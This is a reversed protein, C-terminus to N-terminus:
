PDGGVSNVLPGRPITTLIRQTEGVVSELDAPEALGLISGVAIRATTAAEVAFAALETLDDLDEERTTFGITPEMTLRAEIASEYWRLHHDLRWLWWVRQRGQEAARDHLWQKGPPWSAQDPFASAREELAEVEDQATPRRGVEIDAEALRLLDHASAARWRRFWEGLEVQHDALWRLVTAQEFIRAAVTLAEVARRDRVLPIVSELMATCHSLLGFLALAEPRSIGVSDLGGAIIRSARQLYDVLEDLSPNAPDLGVTPAVTEVKVETGPVARGRAEIARGQFLVGEAVTITMRENFSASFEDGERVFRSLRTRWKLIPYEQGPAALRTPDTVEGLLLGRMVKRTSAVDVPTRGLLWDRYEGSLSLFDAISRRVHSFVAQTAQIAQQQVEDLDLFGHEYGNTATRAADYASRDGEFVLERLGWSKLEQKWPPRPAGPRERDVAIGLARAFEKPDNNGIRQVLLLEVINEAAIWLHDLSQYETGIQWNRLALDYQFLTRQLRPVPGLALTADFCPQLRDTPVVRGGRPIPSSDRVFVQLYEREIRGETADYALEVELPEVAANAVFALVSAVGRALPGHRRVAEDLSAARGNVEVWLDTPVPHQLGQERWLSRLRVRAPDDYNIEFGQDPLLLAASPARLVTVYDATM